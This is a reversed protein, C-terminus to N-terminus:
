PPGQRDIAEVPATRWNPFLHSPTILPMGLPTQSNDDESSDFIVTWSCASKFSTKSSGQTYSALDIESQPEFDEEESSTVLPTANQVAKCFDVISESDLSITDKTSFSSKFSSFNIEHLPRTKPIMSMLVWLMEGLTKTVLPPADQSASHREDTKMSSLVFNGSNLLVDVGKCEACLCGETAVIIEEATSDEKGQLGKVQKRGKNAKQAYLHNKKEILERAKEHIAKVVEAKKKGDVSAIESMPLPMLDLVNLPNFGYVIEFPSFGLKGWLVRWFHNLFMADRDSVITKPVGHLRVVELVFDMSIGTCHKTLIPLPTYFGHPMSKSKAQKCAICKACIKEVDKRMNLLYFHENLMDLTKQVGFHGM